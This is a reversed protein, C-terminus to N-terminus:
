LRKKTVPDHTLIIGTSNHDKPWRVVYCNKAIPSNCSETKRTSFVYAILGSSTHTMVDEMDIYGNVWTIKGDKCCEEDESDVNCNNKNQEYTNIDEEEDDYEDSEGTYPYDYGLSDFLETLIQDRDICSNNGIEDAWYENIADALVKKPDSCKENLLSQWAPLMSAHLDQAADKCGILLAHPYKNALNAVDKDFDGTYAETDTSNQTTPKCSLVDVSSSSDINCSRYELPPIYMDDPSYVGINFVSNLITDQWLLDQNILIKKCSLDNVIQKMDNDDLLYFVDKFKKNCITDMSLVIHNYKTKLISYIIQDIIWHKINTKM